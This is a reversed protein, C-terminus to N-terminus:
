FAFHTSTYAPNYSPSTINRKLWCRSQHGSFSNNPWGWVFGVCDLTSLCWSCCETYNKPQYSTIDQGPTDIDHLVTMNSCSWINNSTSAIQTTTMQIGNTSQYTTFESEPPFVLFHFTSNSANNLIYLSSYNTFILCTRNYSCSIGLINQSQIMTCICEHCSKNMSILSITSSSLAMGHISGIRITEIWTIFILAFIITLYYFFM